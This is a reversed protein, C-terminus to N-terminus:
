INMKIGNTFMIGHAEATTGEEKSHTERKMTLHAVALEMVEM